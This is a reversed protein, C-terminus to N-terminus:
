VNNCWRPICIHSDMFSTDETENKLLIGTVPTINLSGLRFLKFNDPGVEGEEENIKYLIWGV